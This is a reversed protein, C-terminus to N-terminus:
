EFHNELEFDKNKFRITQSHILTSFPSNKTMYKRFGIVYGITIESDTQENTYISTTNVIQEVHNNDSYLICCPVHVNLHTLFANPCPSVDEIGSEGIKILWSTCERYKINNKNFTRNHDFNSVLMLRTDDLKMRFRPNFLHNTRM